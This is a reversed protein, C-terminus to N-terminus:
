NLLLNISIINQVLFLNIIYKIIKNIKENETQGEIKIWKNM